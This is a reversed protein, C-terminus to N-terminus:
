TCAGGGRELAATGGGNACPMAPESRDSRDSRVQIAMHGMDVFAVNVAVDEPLDTKYIGYSLATATTDNILRLCNLGAISAANLMAYRERENFYTPVSIVCDTVGVGESEAIKKLDVLVMGMCQEPTLTIPENCLTVNILCGGDPAETVSFPLKKLDEQLQPDAFKKGLVRKLQHVTNQPALSFKAAGETGMFRMKEGFNVVSPTDRKSERNMLVDIGRKRALAVCSTDNGVDLGVVSM